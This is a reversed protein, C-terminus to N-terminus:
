VKQCVPEGDHGFYPPVQITHGKFDSLFYGYRFAAAELKWTDSKRYPADALPRFPAPTGAERVGM